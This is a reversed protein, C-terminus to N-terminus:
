GLRHKQYQTKATNLNVGMGVLESLIEKRTAPGRARIYEKVFAGVDEIESKAPSLKELQDQSLGAPKIPIIKQGQPLSLIDTNFVTAIKPIEITTTAVVVPAEPQSKTDEVKPKRERKERPAQAINPKTSKKTATAKKAM